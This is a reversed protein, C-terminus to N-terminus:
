LYTRTELNMAEIVVDVRPSLMGEHAAAIAKQQEDNFIDFRAKVEKAFDAILERGFVRHKKATQAIKEPPIDRREEDTLETTKTPQAQRM